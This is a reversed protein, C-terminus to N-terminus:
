DELIDNVFGSAEGDDTQVGLKGSLGIVSDDEVYAYLIYRGGSDEDCTAFAFAKTIEAAEPISGADVISRDIKDQIYDTLEDPTGFTTQVLPDDAACHLLTFSRLRYNGRPTLLYITRSEDFESQDAMGAIDAFMSGDNMHHGYIFYAQDTWDPENRYDMFIAGFNALWGAEGDFDHTLYYENDGGRVVPYNIQTNPVYIWAVTDPNAALLSSWDVEIEALPGLDSADLDFHETAIAEYKQQGQFYSWSIIGLIGLSGVLVVVAILFVWFWPGRQDAGKKVIYDSAARVKDEATPDQLLTADYGEIVPDYQPRNAGYEDM